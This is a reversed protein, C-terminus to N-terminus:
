GAVQELTTHEFEIRTVVTDPTCGRHSECFMSVFHQPRQYLPHTGFGELRCEELGYAPDDLLLRLTERRASIVRVAPGIEAVREGKRLGMCQRVPRLLMGPKAHQWGMRRTVTKIQARMADETLSFSMSRM